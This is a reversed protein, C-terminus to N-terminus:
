ALIKDLVRSVEAYSMAAELEEKLEVFVAIKANLNAIHERKVNEIEDFPPDDPDEEDSFLILNCESREFLDKVDWEIVFRDHHFRITRMALKIHAWCGVDIETLDNLCELKLVQGHIRDYGICHVFYEEILEDSLTRKFWEVKHQKVYEMVEESLNVLERLVTNDVKLILVRGKTSVIHARDININTESKVSSIYTDNKGRKPKLIELAM